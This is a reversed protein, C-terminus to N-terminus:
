LIQASYVQKNVEIMLYNKLFVKFMHRYFAQSHFYILKLYDM